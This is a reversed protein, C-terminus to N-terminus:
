SSLAWLSFKLESHPFAATLYKEPRVNLHGVNLLSRVLCHIEIGIEKPLKIVCGVGHRICGAPFM